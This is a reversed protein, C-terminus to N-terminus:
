TTVVIALAALMQLTIECDQQKALVHRCHNDLPERLLDFTHDIHNMCHITSMSDFTPETTWRPRGHRPDLVTAVNPLEDQHSALYTGNGCSM